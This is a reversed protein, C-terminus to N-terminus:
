LEIKCEVAQNRGRAKAQYLGRDAAAVLVEFDFDPSPICCSVGLSITVYIDVSSRLHPIKLSQVQLRIQQAVYKAGELPTQPLVLVFEEGGYRALLDSPRKVVKSIAQAVQKLCRDGAPHGYTDNYLKFYDIDCLILSLPSKERSLRTWEAVIHRDFKRRNPIQTLGDIVSLQQLELNAQEIQQYLKSQKIAVSLVMAVRELLYIEEVNWTRDFSCNEICILGWLKAECIIPILLTSCSIKTSASNCFDQTVSKGASLLAINSQFLADPVQKAESIDCSLPSDVLRSEFQLTLQNAEVRNIQIKEALLFQKVEDVTTQLIQSLNLSTHIKQTIQALLRDSAARQILKRETRKHSTIDFCYGVLGQFKGDVTFQPIAYNSIWRHNFDSNILRYSITFGKEKRLAREFERECYELDLPHINIFWNQKPQSNIQKGLVRSWAQNFYTPNGEADCMWILTSSNDVITQFLNKTALLQISLETNEQQLLKLKRREKNREIACYISRELLAPSMESLLLYKDRDVSKLDRCAEKLFFIIPISDALEQAICPSGSICNCEKPDLVYFILDPNHGRIFSYVADFNYIKTLRLQHSEISALNREIEMSDARDKEVLLIEVTSNTAQM